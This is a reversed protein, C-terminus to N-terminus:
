KRGVPSSPERAIWFTHAVIGVGGKGPRAIRRVLRPNADVRPNGLRLTALSSLSAEEPRCRSPPVGRRIRDLQEKEYGERRSQREPEVLAIEEHVAQEREEVRGEPEPEVDDDAERAQEVEAIDGVEADTCVTIREDRRRVVSDVPRRQGRKRNHRHEGRQDPEAEAKSRASEDAVVERDDREEEQLRKEDERVRRVGHDVPDAERAARAPDPVDVW